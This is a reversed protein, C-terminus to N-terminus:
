SWRRKDIMRIALFVFAASFTIYYIISSVDLMGMSFGEYRKLLSFWGLFRSTFGEYLTKNILYVIAMVVGGSLATIIAAYINLTAFYVLISIILVLIIAFIIGSIRTTPLSQQIWDILWISLLAGFTGVAAAVQNETLSSIFIGIAIFSAGLLAFGIYNGLIEWADISGFMRLILPYLGTVILTLWFLAVSAFYKGLVIGPLSVPSTLLLQDTKQHTEEALSRMTIIPVLILFVFTSSQLVSSFYSSSQLLNTLSFFLGSIILFVAMFIYGSATTFYGRFEKNFIALM